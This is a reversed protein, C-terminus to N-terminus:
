FDLEFLLTGINPQWQYLSMNVRMRKVSIGEDTLRDFQMKAHESGKPFAIHGSSRLVRFWPLEMTKPASTLAKSTLRARGPLGALDAIQGYSAVKGVPILGVVRWIQQM